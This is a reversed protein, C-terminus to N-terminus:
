GQADALWRAKVTKQLPGSLPRVFAKRARENHLTGGPVYNHMIFRYCDMINKDIGAGSIGSAIKKRDCGVGGDYFAVREADGSLPQM